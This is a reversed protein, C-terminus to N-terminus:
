IQDSQNFREKIKCLVSLLVLDAPQPVAHVLGVGLGEGRGVGDASELGGDEGGGGRFRVVAKM